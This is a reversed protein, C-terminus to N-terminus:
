TLAAILAAVAAPDLEIQRGGHHEDDYHETPVFVRIVTRPDGEANTHNWVAVRMPHYNDFGHVRVEGPNDAGPEQKSHKAWAALALVGAGQGRLSAPDLMALAEDVMGNDTVIGRIEKEHNSDDRDWPKLFCMGLNDSAAEVGDLMVRVEISVCPAEDTWLAKVYEWTREISDDPISRDEDDSDGPYWWNERSDGQSQAPLRRWGRPDGTFDHMCDEDHTVVRAPADEGPDDSFFNDAADCTCERKFHRSLYDGHRTSDDPLGQYGSFHSVEGMCDGLDEWNWSEHSAEIEVTVGPPLNKAAILPDSPDLTFEHLTPMDSM